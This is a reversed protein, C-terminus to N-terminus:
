ACERNAPWRDRWGRWSAWRCAGCSPNFRRGPGGTARVLCIATGPREWVMPPHPKYRPSSALGRRCEAGRSNPAALEERGAALEELWSAFEEPRPVLEEPGEALDELPRPLDELPATLDELIRVLEELGRALEELGRVLEELKAVPPPLFARFLPLLPTIPGSM